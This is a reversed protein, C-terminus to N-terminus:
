TEDHRMGCRGFMRGQHRAEKEWATGLLGQHINELSVVGVVEHFHDGGECPKHLPLDRRRKVDIFGERHNYGLVDSGQSVRRGLVAYRWQGVLTAPHMMPEGHTHATMRVPMAM